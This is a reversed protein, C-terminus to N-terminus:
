ADDDRTDCGDLDCLADRLMQTRMNRLHHLRVMPSAIAALAERWAIRHQSSLSNSLQDRYKDNCHCNHVDM